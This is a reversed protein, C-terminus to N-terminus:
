LYAQFFDEANDIYMSSYPITHGLIYISKSDYREIRAMNVIYSKHVRQFYPQPLNLVAEKLTMRVLWIKGETYIKLYNDMAEIFSITLPDIMVNQYDVKCIFPQIVPLNKLKVLNSAKNVATVFRLFSFPKLLYDAANLNYSDLAYDAYSTTFIVQINQPLIKVFDLGSMAPMNIDLFVIDVHNKDLYRKAANISTFTNALTIQPCKNSFHKIIELAPNEDDLAITIM